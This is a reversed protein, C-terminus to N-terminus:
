RCRVLSLVSLFDRGCSYTDTDANRKKCSKSGHENKVQSLLTNTLGPPPLQYGTAALLVIRLPLLRLRLNAKNLFDLFSWLVM